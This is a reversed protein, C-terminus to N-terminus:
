RSELLKLINDIQRELSYKNEVFSRYKISDYDDKVIEEIEFFFNYVLEEPWQEKAGHYNHIIPKIGRAMAEMINYPHGEHISTSLIFNKDELFSNVDRVYGYIKVNEQLDSERLFHEFYNLYRAGEGADNPKGAIHLKYQNSVKEKLFGIVQLWAAPDKKYSIDGIVAINHGHTKKSFTFKNLDVGNPIIRIQKIRKYADPHFKKLIEGVHKSVIILTDINEWKIKKPFYKLAEYSHLRCVIKKNGKPLENTIEVTLENAWELWIIDAWNYAQVIENSDTTVVLKVEYIHSLIDAIDHIFNDLGPLCFIALKEGKYHQKKIHEYKEKLEPINSSEYAKKYYHLAMAPNNLKLQTDGLMDWVEWSKESIRTLYRWSEFYDGKEFLAKSYNFLVDSHVPNIELAKKFMEIADDLKSEYYFIIGLM